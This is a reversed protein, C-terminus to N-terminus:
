TPVAARPQGTSRLEVPKAALARLSRRWGYDGAWSLRGLWVTFNFVVSSSPLVSPVFLVSVYGYIKGPPNALNLLVGVWLRGFLLARPNHQAFM